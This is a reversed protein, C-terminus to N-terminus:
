FGIKNYGERLDQDNFQLYVQTTNLNSHGLLQQVRRLDLGSRVLHIAFSHRLTHPHIDIGAIAGYRKVINRIQNTKVGFIACDDPTNAHLVYSCLLEMTSTDIYARRSKNGKGNVVNIVQNAPELDGPTLAELESVRLGSEWLVRLILYDRLSCAEAYRLIEHVKEKECYAKIDKM